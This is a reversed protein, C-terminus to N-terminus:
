SPIIEGLSNRKIIPVFGDTLTHPCPGHRRGCNCNYCLIRYGPPYGENVLRNYLTAGADKSDRKGNSMLRDTKGHVHDITLFREEKEGCCECFNGYYATLLEWLLQNRENQRVRIVELHKACYSRRAAPEGCIPCLRNEKRYLQIRSLTQHERCHRKGGSDGGCSICVGRDRREQQNPSLVMHKKCYRNGNSFEGCRLCVGRELRDRRKPKLYEYAM